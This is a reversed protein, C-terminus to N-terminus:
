PDYVASVGLRAGLRIDKCLCWVKGALSSFATFSYNGHGLSLSVDIKKIPRFGWRAFCNETYDKPSPLHDFNVATRDSTRVPMGVNLM